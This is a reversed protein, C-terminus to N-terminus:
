RVPPAKMRGVKPLPYLNISRLASVVLAKATKKSPWCALSAVLCAIERKNAGHTRAIMAAGYFITSLIEARYRIKEMGRLDSLLDGKALLALGQGLIRDNFSLSGPAETYIILPEPIAVFRAGARYARIAFDWDEIGNFARDFGGLSRALTTRVLVTSPIIFNGRRLRDFDFPPPEVLFVEGTIKSRVQQGVYVLDANTVAMVEMQKKLKDPFWVDDADLFALYDGFAAAIGRNRAASVGANPQYIYRLDLKFERKAVMIVRQTDDTSGDDVVIVKLPQLTQEAISKLAWAITGAANYAPIIVTINSNGM